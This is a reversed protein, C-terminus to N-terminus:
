RALLIWGKYAKEGTAEKVKLIYYYTGENLGNGDWTNSYNASHYVQNGWRNYIDLTVGQYRELGRIIFKDNKGDGNPSLANPIFLAEAEVTLIVTAPTSSIGRTNKIVYKLSDSGTYGLDPTYTITGDPNVTVTGHKPQETIIISGRDIGISDSDNDIVPIVVPKNAVTASSDKQAVPPAIVPTVKIVVTAPNSTNGKNDKVTYKFDDPGDYGPTPTYTVTGNPNVTVTGHKPQQTIVVTAPNIPNTKTSDNGLVPITVPTNEPTATSDNVAVPPVPAPTTTIVVKAPISTTGDPSKVTYTLTDPGTYGPNPTYTGTGDPNVVVTGHTPPMVITVTSSDLPGGDNNLVPITVPTNAPTTGADDVPVPAVGPITIIVTAPNSVLGTTDKVTYLLTDPGAYNNAPTYTVTGNPNVTVTGHKPQQTIVVTAPAIPNTKTSDNSLVPITVPTNVPTTTSDNVAAPPVPAPTTNIIVKAPVSTTGDPSKVTYTLTDPGNYGPNPTYTVTGDPNVVVTGHTPPTVITVTSSDLPGGDNNLVPITVSINPPTTGADDLPSPAVGLTKIVVTAPNSVLGTTDKVTYLLTDPGAYNNAPTYTVTGNPNVTVTGHKPQQTIVVTAPAIPYTKTSDNSLVPITVPTNVPTTTSDNVAAPPVPAPTTTIVVKAPVSTTGDPSKVTYTLTDPGTYGPNPTYTVTGDPNVVVTGHTPPTVITVTSSDLPGGDNNLVPITVPTNVPTTGADDVPSPAVGPTKIVVTAPNSVLGTTDKVTYLLTDLGAYNNVPTYTVTGDPNVTVTGHKPQQTIVVTAPAIPYTKASDNSLVPITVPTNLPTSTSDNVAVPPVPAPTVTIIVKVPVSTTGDPSKVTYTLTDTGTYGPNPTYTVTGDPNVVVTGHTPPTVITVTTSDLPGGDNNLVPITVPTNVPTTGADDLPSPAVGPTKIVVTAPNSVLGATDKVTYLLTDLGAYNNVPTYTVTGDPNVTVTGHKPQQTIV